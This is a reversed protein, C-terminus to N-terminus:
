RIQGPRRRLVRPREREKALDDLAKKQDDDLVARLKTDLEKHLRSIDTADAILALAISKLASLDNDKRSQELAEQFSTFQGALQMVIKMNKDDLQKQLKALEKKQADTLKLRDEVDKPIVTTFREILNELPRRALPVDDAVASSRSAALALLSFGIVLAHSRNM